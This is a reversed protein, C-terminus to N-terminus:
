LFLSKPQTRQSPSNKQGLQSVYKQMGPDRASPYDKTMRPLYEQTMKQEEAVTLAAEQGSNDGERYRTQPGTACAALLLPSAQIFLRRGSKTSILQKLENEFKEIHLNKM